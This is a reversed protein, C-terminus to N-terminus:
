RCRSSNEPRKLSVLTKKNISSIHIPRHMIERNIQIIPDHCGVLAEKHYQHYGLGSVSPTVHCMPEESVQNFGNLNESCHTRIAKSISYAM